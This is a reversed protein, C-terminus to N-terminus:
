GIYLRYQRGDIQAGVEVGDTRWNWGLAQLTQM